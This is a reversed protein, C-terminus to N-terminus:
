HRSAFGIIDETICGSRSCCCVQLIVFVSQYYPVNLIHYTKYKNNWYKQIFKSIIHNLVSAKGINKYGGAIMQIFGSCDM